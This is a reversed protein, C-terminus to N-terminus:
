EHEWGIFTNRPAVQWASAGAWEHCRFLTMACGTTTHLWSLSLTSHVIAPHQTFFINKKLIM